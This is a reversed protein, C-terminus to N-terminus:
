IFKCKVNVNVNANDYRYNYIILLTCPRRYGRSLAGGGVGIAFGRGAVDFRVCWSQYGATQGEVGSKDRESGSRCSGRSVEEM